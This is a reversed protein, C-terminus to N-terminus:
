EGRFSGMTGGSKRGSMESLAPADKNKLRDMAAAASSPTLDGIESSIAAKLDAQKAKVPKDTASLYSLTALLLLVGGGISIWNRRLAEPGGDKSPPPLQGGPGGLDGDDRLHQVSRVQSPRLHPASLVVAAPRLQRRFLISSTRLASM